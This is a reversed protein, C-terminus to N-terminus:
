AKNLRVNDIYFTAGIIQGFTSDWTGNVFVFHWIGEEGPNITKTYSLWGTDTGGNSSWASLLNITEGSIPNLLYSFVKYADSLSVDANSVARYNFSVSDGVEALVPFESYLAPGYVITGAPSVEGFSDMRASRTEGGVSVNTSTTITCTFQSLTIPYGPSVGNINSPSIFPDAPTPFGLINTGGNLLIRNPILIWSTFNDEFGPNYFVETPEAAPQKWFGLRAAAFPM